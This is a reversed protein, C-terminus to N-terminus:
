TPNDLVDLETAPVQAPNVGGVDLALVVVPGHCPPRPLLIGFGDEEALLNIYYATTTREADRQLKNKTVRKNTQKRLHPIPSMRGGIVYYTSVIDM